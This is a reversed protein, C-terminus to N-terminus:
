FPVDNLDIEQGDFKEAIKEVIESNSPMSRLKDFSGGNDGNEKRSHLDVKKGTFKWKRRTEGGGKPEWEEVKPVAHPISVANGKKVYNNLVEAPKQWIELEFWSTTDNKGRSVALSIDSKCKGYDFYKLSPDRGATGTVKVSCTNEVFYDENFASEFWKEDVPVFSSLNVVLDKDIAQTSAKEELRVEGTVTIPKGKLSAIAEMKKGFVEIIVGPKGQEILLLGKYFEKDGRSEVKGGKLLGTLTAIAHTM